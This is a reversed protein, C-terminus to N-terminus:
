TISFTCAQLLTCIMARVLEQKVAPSAASPQLSAEISLTVPESTSVDDTVKLQVKVAEPGSSTMVHKNSQRAVEAMAGDPLQGEQKVEATHPQKGKDAGSLDNHLDADANALEPANQLANLSRKRRKRSAEQQALAQQKSRPSCTCM